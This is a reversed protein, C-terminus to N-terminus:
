KESPNKKFMSKIFEFIKKLGSKFAFLAGLFTAALIQIIYSGTGLDLYAYVPLAILLMFIMFLRIKSSQM